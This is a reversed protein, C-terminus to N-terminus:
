QLYKNFIKIYSGDTKMSLLAKNFDSIIKTFDRKKNFALYSPIAEIEPSLEKINNILGEQKAVSLAVYRYSPIIDVRGGVLKRINTEASNSFDIKLFIGDRIAQDLQPGYSTDRIIGLTLNSLKKLNGDFSIKSDKSVYFAQVQVILVEKAYILFQEREPIDYVSFIGDVSGARVENLCRAWPMLKISVPYGARKFAENIVDVLIGTQKGENEYATPITDAAVLVLREASNARMAIGSLVLLLFAFCLCTKVFQDKVSFILCKISRM